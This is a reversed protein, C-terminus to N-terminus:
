DTQIKKLASFFLEIDRQQALHIAESKVYKHNLEQVQTEVTTVYNTLRIIENKASLLADNATKIIMEFESIKKNSEDLNQKHEDERLKFKNTLCKAIDHTKSLSEVLESKENELQKIKTLQQNLTITLLSKESKLGENEEHMDHTIKTISEIHSTLLSYPNLLVKPRKVDISQEFDHERKVSVNDSLLKITYRIPSFFFFKITEKGKCTSLEFSFDTPL